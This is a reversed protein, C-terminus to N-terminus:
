GIANNCVHLTEVHMNSYCRQAYVIADAYSAEAYPSQTWPFMLRSGLIEEIAESRQARIRKLTACIRQASEVM